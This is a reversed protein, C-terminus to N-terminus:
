CSGTEPFLPNQKKERAVSTIPGHGPCLITSDPLSLIQKRIRDLADEWNNPAGGASGAFLADGVIALPQAAGDIVYTTGGPSHGSTDRVSVKLPGFSLTDGPSVPTAGPYPEGAPTYLTAGTDERLVDIGATHDRHTHTLFLAAARLHHDRLAAAIAAPRGGCDFVLTDPDGSAHVLYANVRMEAYGPVPFPFDFPILGEPPSLRPHYEGRALALLSAPDLRLAPAVRLLSEEDLRGELLAAIKQRDLGSEAALTGANKGLGRAAKGVVDDWNDELNM